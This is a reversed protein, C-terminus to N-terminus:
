HHMGLMQFEGTTSISAAENAAAGNSIAKSSTCSQVGQPHLKDLRENLAANENRLHLVMVALKDIVEQLNATDIDVSCM